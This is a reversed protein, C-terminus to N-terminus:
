IRRTSVAIDVTADHVEFDAGDVNSITLRWYRGWLGKGPTVRSNRPANADREELLYTSPPHGSEYVEAQVAIQGESTYGFYMNDLRKTQAVGFDTFGSEVLADIQEGNDTDGALEHIGDPGVALERGQWSVISEFSFNDYWGVATTETNMVWAKATPDKYWVESSAEATSSILLSVDTQVQVLSTGNATSLLLYTDPVVSPYASSTAEASSTEDALVRRQLVAILGQANASGVALETLGLSAFSSKAEGKSELFVDAITGSGAVSSMAQAVSVLLQSADSALIHDTAVAMSEAMQNLGQVVSSVGQASSRLMDTVVLTHSVSSAAGGESVLVAFADIVVSDTAQASETILGQPQLGIIATSTANAVEGRVMIVDTAPCSSTAVAVSECIECYDSM